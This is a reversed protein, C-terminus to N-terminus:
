SNKKLLCAICWTALAAHGLIVPFTGVGRLSLAFAAYAVLLSVVVNYFFMGILLGFAVPSLIDNRAYWCAIALVVIATGAVRAVVIGVATELSAGLLLSATLSPAALLALATLLEVIATVLFFKKIM